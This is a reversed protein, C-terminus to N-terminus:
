SMAPLVVKVLLGVRGDEMSIQGRHLDIIASVLSLGLGNGPSTRSLEARYFRSFVKDKENDAIGIGEDEISLEIQNNVPKLVISICSNEPSFKIANDLLNACAQFLLDPDCKAVVSEKSLKIAVKKEEALPQYLDLVDELLEDIAMQTFESRVKGSEINSIRLLASFTQLLKDAELILREARAGVEENSDDLAGKHLEELNNRLRSLPTRLDHAINDSVRRVGDLLTEIRELMHNLTGALNSIDDWSTTVEIRRSLDGTKIIERSTKAISETRAVVYSGIFFSIVIVTMMMMITIFGLFQMLERTELAVSIDQAVLLRGGNDFTEVKGAVPRSDPIPPGRLVAEPPIDFRVVGEVLTTFIINEIDMDQYIINDMEDYYVYWTGSPNEQVKELVERIDQDTYEPSNWVELSSIVSDIGSEVERVLSTENFQNLFYALVSISILLPVALSLAIKFSSSRTYQVSPKAQKSSTDPM